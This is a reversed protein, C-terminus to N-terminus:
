SRGGNERHGRHERHSGKKPKKETLAYVKLRRKM